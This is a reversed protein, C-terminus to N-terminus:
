LIMLLQAASSNALSNAYSDAYSDANSDLVLQATQEPIHFEILAAIVFFVLFTVALAAFIVVIFRLVSSM